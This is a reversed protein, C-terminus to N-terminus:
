KKNKKKKKKKKIKVRDKKKKKKKLCFVAYSIQDHSSNLRTSKRDREPRLPVALVAVGHAVVPAALVRSEALEGVPERAAGVQVGRGAAPRVRADVEDGRVVAERELVQDGVVLLVVLRVALLVAVALAVVARPVAAGFSRRVVVADIREAGPLLAIEEGGQQERLPDRHDAAPVLDPARLLAVVVGVALVVLKGPEVPLVEVLGQEVEGAVQDRQAALVADEGPPAPELAARQVPGPHLVDGPERGLRCLHALLVPLGAEGLREADEQVAVGDGAGVHVGIADGVVAEVEDEVRVVLRQLEGHRVLAERLVPELQDVGVLPRAAAIPALALLFDPRAALDVRCRPRQDQQLLDVGVSASRGPGLRTSRELMTGSSAAQPSSRPVQLTSSLM